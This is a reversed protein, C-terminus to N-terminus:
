SERNKRRYELMDLFAEVRTRMGAEGTHEDITISMYPLGRRKTEIELYKDVISDPGCAFATIHILGDVPQVDMYYLAGQVVRNSFYWFMDKDLKYSQSELQQKNLMDQTYVRVGEQALASILGVNIYPDYIAYPYGVVALSCSNDGIPISSQQGLGSKLNRAQENARALEHGTLSTKKYSGFVQQMAMDPMIGKQLLQEYDKQVKSARRFARCISFFDAGLSKGLRSYVKFLERNGKKLDLRAELVPSLDNISAALMDPLGLFKPCLTETGFDGYKRMSVLRPVFIYDVKDKLDEVHGHFVKIPICADSVTDKIGQDLIARTTPSSEIVEHGLEEFYTKWFPFYIYYALARPMGITAM